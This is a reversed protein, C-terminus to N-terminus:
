RLPMHECPERQFRLSQADGWPVIKGLWWVFSTQPVFAQPPWQVSFAPPFGRCFHEVEIPLWCTALLRSHRNDEQGRTVLLGQHRPVLKPTARHPPPRPRRGIAPRPEQPIAIGHFAARSAKGQCSMQHAAAN